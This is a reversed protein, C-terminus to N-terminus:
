QGSGIARILHMLTHQGLLTIKESKGKDFAQYVDEPKMQPNERYLDGILKRVVRVIDNPVQSGPYSKNIERGVKPNNTVINFYPAPEPHPM